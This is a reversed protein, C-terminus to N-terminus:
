SARRKASRAAQIPVMKAGTVDPQDSKEAKRSSGSGGLARDIIRAATRDSEQITHAYLNLTTAATIHGLRTGTAQIDLGKRILLSAMAHRLSHFHVTEMGAAKMTKGFALSFVGPNWQTGPTPCCVPVGDLSERGTSM